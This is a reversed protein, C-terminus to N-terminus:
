TKSKTVIFSCLSLILLQGEPFQMVQVQGRTEPVIDEQSQAGEQQIVGTAFGCQMWTKAIDIAGSELVRAQFSGHISSGPPSCDM